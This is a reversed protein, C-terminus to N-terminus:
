LLQLHCRTSGARNKGSAAGSIGASFSFNSPGTCPPPIYSSIEGSFLSAQKGTKTKLNNNGRFYIWEAWLSMPLIRWRQYQSKRWKWCKWRVSSIRCRNMCTKEGNSEIFYKNFYKFMRTLYEWYRFESDPEISQKEKQYHMMNKKRKWTHQLKKNISSMTLLAPCYLCTFLKHRSFLMGRGRGTCELPFKLGGLRSSSTPRSKTTTKTINLAGYHPGRWSNNWDM